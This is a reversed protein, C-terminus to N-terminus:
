HCPFGTAHRTDHASNHLVEAGAFGGMFLLALGVAMATLPSALGASQSTLPLTKALNTM